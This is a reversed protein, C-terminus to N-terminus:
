NGLYKTLVEKMAKLYDFDEQVTPEIHANDTLNNFDEVMIGFTNSYPVAIEIRKEM